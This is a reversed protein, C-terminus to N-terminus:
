TPLPVQHQWLAEYLKDREAIYAKLAKLEELLGARYLANGIEHISM